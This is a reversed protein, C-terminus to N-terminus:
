RGGGTVAVEASVVRMAAEAELPGRFPACCPFRLGPNDVSKSAGYAAGPRSQTTLPTAPVGSTPTDCSFLTSPLAVKPVPTKM